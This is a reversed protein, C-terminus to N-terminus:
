EIWLGKAKVVEKYKDPMGDIIKRVTEMPFDRWIAFLNDILENQSTPILYNEYLKRKM